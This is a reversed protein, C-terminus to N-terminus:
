YHYRLPDFDIRWADMWFEFIGGLEHVISSSYYEVYFRPLSPYPVPLPFSARDSPKVSLRNGMAVEGVEM